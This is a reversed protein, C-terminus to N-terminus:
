FTQEQLGANGAMSPSAPRDEGARSFHDPRGAVWDSFFNRRMRSRFRSQYNSLFFQLAKGRGIPWGMPGSNLPSNPFPGSFRQIVKARPMCRITQPDNSAFFIATPASPLPCKSACATDPVRRAPLDPLHPLATFGLEVNFVTINQSNMIM